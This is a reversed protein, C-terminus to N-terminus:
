IRKPWNIARNPRLERKRDCNSSKCHRWKAIAAAGSSGAGASRAVIETRMGRLGILAARGYAVRVAPRARHRGAAQRTRRWTAGQQRRVGGLPLWGVLWGAEDNRELQSLHTKFFQEWIDAMILARRSPGAALRTKCGNDHGRM